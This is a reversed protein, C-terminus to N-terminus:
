IPPLPVNWSLKTGVLAASGAPCVSETTHLTSSGSTVSAGEASPVLTTAVTGAVSVAVDNLKVAVPVEAASGEGIVPVTLTGIRGTGAGNGVESEIVCVAYCYYEAGYGIAGFWGGGSPLQAFCM